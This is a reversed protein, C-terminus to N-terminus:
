QVVIWRSSFFLAVNKWRREVLRRNLGDGAFVAVVVVWVGVMGM